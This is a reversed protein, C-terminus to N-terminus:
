KVGFSVVRKKLQILILYFSEIIQIDRCDKYMLKIHIKFLYEGVFGKVEPLSLSEKLTTADFLRETSEETGSEREMLRVTFNKDYLMDKIALKMKEAKEFIDKWYKLFLYKKHATNTYYNHLYKNYSFLNPRKEFLRELPKNWDKSADKEIQERLKGVLLTTEDKELYNKGILLYIPEFDSLIQKIKESEILQSVFSEQETSKMECFRIQFEVLTSKIEDQSLSILFKYAGKYDEIDIFQLFDEYKNNQKSLPLTYM